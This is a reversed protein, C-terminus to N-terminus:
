FLKHFFVKAYHKRDSHPCKTVKPSNRRNTKNNLFKPKLDEKENLINANCYQSNITKSKENHNNKLYELSNSLLSLNENNEFILKHNTKNLMSSGLKFNEVREFQLNHNSFIPTKKAIM